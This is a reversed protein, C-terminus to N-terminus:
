LNTLCQQRLHLLYIQNLLRLMNMDAGVVMLASEKRITHVFRRHGLLFCYYPLWFSDAIPLHLFSFDLSVESM